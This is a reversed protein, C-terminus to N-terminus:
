PCGVRYADLGPRKLIAHLDLQMARACVEAADGEVEIDFVPKGQSIFPELERCSDNAICGFHIAFDFHPALASAQELEGALGVELGRAHAESALFRSYELQEELTIEFGTDTRSMSLNTPVVGDFGKDRARDLRATMLERVEPTRVDLWSEQPYAVLNRGIVREPLADVDDRFPEHTGASLYAIAVKDRAHLGDILSSSSNFLDIVFLEAELAPDVSGVLQYQLRLGQTVRGIPADSGSDSGAEAGTGSAGGASGSDPDGGSDRARLLYGEASSCATLM